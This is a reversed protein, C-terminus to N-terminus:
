SIRYHTGFVLLGVENLYSLFWTEDIVIIIIVELIYERIKDLFGGFFLVFDRAVNM